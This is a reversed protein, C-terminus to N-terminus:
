RRGATTKALMVPTPIEATMARLVVEEGAAVLGAGRAEAEERAEAEARAEAEGVAGGGAEEAASTAEPDPDFSVKFTAPLSRIRPTGADRETLPPGRSSGEEPSSSSSPSGPAVKRTSTWAPFTRRDSRTIRERSPERDGGSSTTSPPGAAGTPLVGPTAAAVATVAAAVVVIVV